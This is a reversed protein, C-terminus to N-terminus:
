GAGLTVGGPGVWCSAEASSSDRAGPVDLGDESVNLAEQTVEPEVTAAFADTATVALTGVLAVSACGAVTPLIYKM